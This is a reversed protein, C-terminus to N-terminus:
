GKAAEIASKAALDYVGANVLFLIMGSLVAVVVTELDPRHKLFVMLGFFAVSLVGNLWPAFKTPLGIGKAFQVLAIIIPMIYINNIVLEPVENM